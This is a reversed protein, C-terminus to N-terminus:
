FEPSVCRGFRHALGSQRRFLALLHQAADFPQEASPPETTQEILTAPRSSEIGRQGVVVVDSLDLFSQFQQEFTGQSALNKELGEFGPGGQLIFFPPTEPNAKDSRPFRYVDISVVDSGTKNRNLPVFMTAREAAFMGGAKLPIREPHIFMTGAAPSPVIATHFSQSLCTPCPWLVIVLLFSLLRYM